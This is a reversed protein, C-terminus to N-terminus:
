KHKGELYQQYSLYEAETAPLKDNLYNGHPIISKEVHCTWGEGEKSFAAPYVVFDVPFGSIKYKLYKPMEDWEREEWWALVKFINPCRDMEEWWYKAWNNGEYIYGVKDKQEPYPAIVKCRPKLLDENSM